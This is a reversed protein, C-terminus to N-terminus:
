REEEELIACINTRRPHGKFIFLINTERINYDEWLAQLLSEGKAISIQSCYSNGDRESIVTYRKM